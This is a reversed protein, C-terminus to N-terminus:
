RTRAQDVASGSTWASTLQTGRDTAEAVGYIYGNRTDMLVASATCVVQAQQNPSLGLTIVSLPAANDQGRFTTDVAYVLLMDAGRGPTAYSACGAFVCSALALATTIACTVFPRRVPLTLANSMPREQFSVRVFQNPQGM